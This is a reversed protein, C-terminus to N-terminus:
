DHHEAPMKEEKFLAKMVTALEGNQLPPLVFQQDGKSVYKALVRMASRLEELEEKMDKVKKNDMNTFGSLAFLRHAKAYEAKLTPALGQIYTLDETKVKKGIILKAHSEPMGSSLLATFLFKRLRHFRIHGRPQINAKKALTRIWINLGDVTLPNVRKSKATERYQRLVAICEGTLHGRTPQGTKGREFWFGVPPDLDESLYPEIFDWKLSLFDSAGWGLNLGLCLRVKDEISGVRFMKQLEDLSFEHEGTAMKPSAIAGKRIRLPVIQNSFFSRVGTVLNKASNTKLGSALLENYWAIVKNGWKKAFERDGIQECENVFDEDTMGSWESFREFNYKYQKFTRQKSAYQSLWERVYKGM